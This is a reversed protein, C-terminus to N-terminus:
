GVEEHGLRAQLKMYRRTAEEFRPQLTKMEEQATELPVGLKALATQYSADEEDTTPGERMMTPTLPMGIWVASSYFDRGNRERDIPAGTNTAFVHKRSYNATRSNITAVMAEDARFQPLLPHWAMVLCARRSLPFTAEM